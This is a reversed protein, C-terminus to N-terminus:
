SALQSQTNTTYCLSHLPNLLSHGATALSFSPTQRKELAKVSYDVPKYSPVRM